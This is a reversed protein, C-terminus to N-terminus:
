AALYFKWLNAIQPALDSYNWLKASRVASNPDHLRIQGNEMEVLVIFHGSDTFDGPLMSCIIPQGCELAQQISNESLPLQESLLGFEQCGTRMLSWDSGVGDVYYGNAEAFTAVRYPTITNDGTLGTAVMSLCTPGCGTVALFDSGYTTYGWREDWQLLMPIEGQTVAGITDAPPDDQHNPYDLVFSRTEENHSLLNLLSEPYQAPHNLIDQITRDNTAMDELSELAEPELVASLNPDTTPTVIHVILVFIGCCFLLLGLIQLVSGFRKRKTRRTQPM